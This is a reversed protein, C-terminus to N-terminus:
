VRTLNGGCYLIAAILALRGAYIMDWIVVAVVYRNGTRAMPATKNSNTATVGTGACSQGVFVTRITTGKPAPDVGSM